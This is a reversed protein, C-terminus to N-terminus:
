EFKTDLSEWGHSKLKRTPVFGRKVFSVEPSPKGTSIIALTLV